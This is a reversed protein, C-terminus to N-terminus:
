LLRDGIFRMRSRSASDAAAAATMGLGAWARTNEAFAVLHGPPVTGTHKREPALPVPKGPKLVIFGIMWFVTLSPQARYARSRNVPQPVHGDDLGAPVSSM